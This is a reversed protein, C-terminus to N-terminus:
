PPAIVSSRPQSSFSDMMVLAYVAGLLLAVLLLLTFLRLLLLNKKRMARASRKIALQKEVECLLSDADESAPESAPTKPNSEPNNMACVVNQFRLSIEKSFLLM